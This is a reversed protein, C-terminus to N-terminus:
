ERQCICVQQSVKHFAIAEACSRLTKLQQLVSNVHNIAKVLDLNSSQLTVSLAKTFRLIESLIHVTAIFLAATVASLLSYQEFDSLM